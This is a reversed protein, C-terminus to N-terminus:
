GPPRGPAPAPPTGAAHTGGAGAFSPLPESRVGGAAQPRTVSLRPRPTTGASSPKSSQDPMATFPARPVVTASTARAVATRAPSAGVGSVAGIPGSRPATDVGASSGPALGAAIARSVTPATTPNGRSAPWRTTRLVGTTGGPAAAPAKARQIAPARSSM